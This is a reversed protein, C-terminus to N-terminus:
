QVRKVFMSWLHEAAGEHTLFENARGTMFGGFMSKWGLNYKNDTVALSENTSNTVHPEDSEVYSIGNSGTLGGLRVGCGSVKKGNSFITATFSVATIPQLKTKIHSYRKELEALSNIFYDLIDKYGEQVFETRELDSFQRPLNLNSSRKAGTDRQTMTADVARNDAANKGVVSGGREAHAPFPHGVVPNTVMGRLQRVVDHFGDDLTPFKVVPVADTPLAKLRGIESSTWDCPRLIIPVVQAVGAKARQLARAMEISVCYHSNMFDASVLLLVLDAAELAVSITADFAEGPRICHDTWVEVLGERKLSALHVDLQGRLGQDAHCYSIFVSAM